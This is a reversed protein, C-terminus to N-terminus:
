KRISDVRCVRDGDNISQISFIEEQFEFGHSHQSSRNKLGDCLRNLDYEM